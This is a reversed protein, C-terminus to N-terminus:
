SQLFAPLSNLAPWCRGVDIGCGARWFTSSVGFCDGSPPRWKLACTMMVADLAAAFLTFDNNVGLNFSMPSASSPSGRSNTPSFAMDFSYALESMRIEPLSAVKEVCCITMTQVSQLLCDCKKTSGSIQGDDLPHNVQGLM